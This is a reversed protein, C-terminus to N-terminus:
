EFLKNGFFHGLAVQDDVEAFGAGVFQGLGEGEAAVFVGGGEALFGAGDQAVGQFGMGAAGGVAEVVFEDRAHHALAAELAVVEVSQQAADGLRYVIAPVQQFRGILYVGGLAGFFFRGDGV